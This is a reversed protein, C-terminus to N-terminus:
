KTERSITLANIFSLMAKELNGVIAKLRRNLIAHWILAPIAVMLGAQTTVLAESIGGAMTNPDGTGYLSIMEFTKIIGMVTGLLGMLPAAGASVSLVPMFRDLRPIQSLINENLLEELTDRSISHHEFAENLLEKVPGRLTALYTKAEELNGNQILLVLKQVKDDYQSRIIYLQISKWIGVVICIVALFSLPYMIAGGSKFKDTFSKETAQKKLALGNSFDFPLTSLEGDIITKLQSGSNPLPKFSPYPHHKSNEAVGAKGDILLFSHSHGLSLLQAEQVTGNESVAKISSTTLKFGKNIIGNQVQEYNQFFNLWDKNKLNEDLKIFTEASGTVSIKPIVMELERRAQISSQLLDVMSNQNTKVRLELESIEQLLKEIEYGLQIDSKQSKSLQAKASATERSIKERETFIATRKKSLKENSEILEKELGKSVNEFDVAKVSSLTIFMSIFILRIM